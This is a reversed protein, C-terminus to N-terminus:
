MTSGLRQVIRKAVKQIPEYKDHVLNNLHYLAGADLVPKAEGLVVLRDLAEVAHHRMIEDKEELAKVLPPIGGKAIFEKPDWKPRFVWVMVMDLMKKRVAPDKNSLDRITADVLLTEPSQPASKPM